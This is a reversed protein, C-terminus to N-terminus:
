WVNVFLRRSHSLNLQAYIFLSGYSLFWDYSTCIASVALDGTISIYDINECAKNDVSM